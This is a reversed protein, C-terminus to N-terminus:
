TACDDQKDEIRRLKLLIESKLVESEKVKQRITLGRDKEYVLDDQIYRNAKDVNDEL